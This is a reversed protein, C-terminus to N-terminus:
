QGKLRWRAQERIWNFRPQWKTEVIQRLVKQAETTKGAQQLHQARDWLIQANTPEADFAARYALDALDFDGEQTLSRALGLWPESESPKHAIPTTLYDWALDRAGLSRLISAARECPASSGPDLSRWRDAARVTRQILDVPPQLKLTGIAGALMQYHDLLKGYDSRVEQLNIVSPGWQYEIALAEELCTIARATLGRQEAIQGALRWLYARQLWKGRVKDGDAKGAPEPSRLLPELLQDAQALQNTQRLFAVATLTTVLRESEGEVGDLAVRLLNAALPQDGIQWCQWALAIVAPRDKGKILEAATDRMLASWLNEEEGEGQLAERFAADIPPLLGKKRAKAYLERFHARAEARKGGRLLNRAHEYNPTWALGSGNDLLRWAEALDRHFREDSGAQDQVLTLLALGLLSSKNARIFGLAREQEARGSRPAYAGQAAAGARNVSGDQWRLWRDRFASLRTLFDDRPGIGRGWDLPWRRQASRYWGNHELVLYAALPHDAHEQLVPLLLSDAGVAVGCSALLTCFGLRRDGREHFCRRYIERARGGQQYAFEAAFLELAEAPELYDLCLNEERDLPKDAALGYQQYAHHRERLPLPLVVLKATDPRLEPEAAAETAQKRTALEKGEASWLKITGDTDYTERLHLKKAPMEILRRESLRGDEAFVMEVRLYALPKGDADRTTTAGRPSIAVTREAVCEVDAGRALDEVPPLLWPVLAPLAARHFRSVDRHAGIGLEPYLHLLTRGDCVVRERLGLPLTREYAYRGSGDFFLTFASGDKDSGLTLKRWGGTRAQEILQRAAPDIRGPLSHFDPVAEAELVAQIDAHTTSLGPAYAALDSFVRADNRFSPRTYLQRESAGGREERTIGGVTFGRVASLQPDLPSTQRLMVGDIGGHVREPTLHSPQDTFWIREWEYDIQRLDESNNLLGLSNLNIRDTRSRPTGLEPLRKLSDDLMLMSSSADLIRVGNDPRFDNIFGLPKFQGTTIQPAFGYGMRFNLGAVGGMPVPRAIAGLQELPAGSVPRRSPTNSRAGIEDLLSYQLNLLVPAQLGLEIGFAGNVDGLREEVPTFASFDDSRFRGNGASRGKLTDRTQAYLQVATLVQRGDFSDSWGPWTLWRAPVRLLVTQLVQNAQPKESQPAGRPDIPQLPDPEYVVPIKAPCPYLAWHDKRGRDVKFQRYMEESELVLLSTFPTMVYMAKSLAIIRDRHKVADEALLRDIELRAWTRPLYGADGAVDKVPLTRRFVQGDLTGGVIVSEPLPEGAEVRAIACLEEGQCLSNNMMLFRARGGGDTVGVDLLRPTNLAAFLDFARWAVPEDPNIQTVYGGTREAAARMFGRSWRKGVGVGIYRVDQPVQKALVDERREGLAPIGSGVHVLYSNAGAQTFTEATALAASLDLAGILHARELFEVAAQINESTAARPEPAFAQVRTGATVVAFTDGHEVHRLLAQIIDIQVRALLPDRDGSSEFLFVWNRANGAQAPRPAIPLTPRYRLMLYRAGEHEFSSFRAKDDAPPQPDFLSLQIDRDVKVLQQRADLLLDAGEQKAKLEHSDCTWPFAAGNKVRAHFSWDRVVELSHGAPFRYDLRGYLAPLKQTYSLIIRKEQRGELPFVRMKFTTGDVWELLAPDRQSTVIEEYVARGYNREVMGGEMLNGDVYMALRSLSADAPLPFYFTGELRRPEDNFYTQDITTRAFGDEIHVDIHYKRLSLKAEQGNPDHAILAGGAYKSGPVLPSEAHAMLDRTWDLLHTVRPAPEPASGDPALQQGALLLGSCGSVSVQGQTVLVGTRDNEARIALKTGLATVECQPAKIIFPANGDPRPAVEAYVEGRDLTLRREADLKVTTNQNLYLVTGDLLTTRRREGSRTQLMQGVALPEAPPAAPRPRATLHDPILSAQDPSPSPTPAPAPRKLLHFSLLAIGAVSAAAALSWALRRGRRRPTVMKVSPGAAPLQATVREAVAGVAQRREAFTRRLEEDQLRFANLTAQCSACTRLHADLAARQAPQIERDLQASILLLAQECDM